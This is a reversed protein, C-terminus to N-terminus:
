ASFLWRFAAILLAIVLLAVLLRLLIPPVNSRGSDRHPARGLKPAPQSPGQTTRGTGHDVTGAGGLVATVSPAAPVETSGSPVGAVPEATGIVDAARPSVPPQETLPTTPSVAESLPASAPPPTRRAPRRTLYARPLRFSLPDALTVTPVSGSVPRPLHVLRPITARGAVPSRLAITQGTEGPSVADETEVPAHPWTVEVASRDSLAGTTWGIGSRSIANLARPPTIAVPPRSTVHTAADASGPATGGVRDRLFTARPVGYVPEALSDVIASEVVPNPARPPELSAVAVRAHSGPTTATVGSCVCGLAPAVDVLASQRALLQQALETAFEGGGHSLEVLARQHGLEWLTEPAPCGGPLSAFRRRDPPLVADFVTPQALVDIGSDALLALFEATRYRVDYDPPGAAPCDGIYMLQGIRASYLARVHRAVAVPPAVTNVLLSALEVGSALLRQRVIPCACFVAPQGSRGGLARLTAEAVLEDGWSEPFVLDFGAALCAHAFQIPRAPLAEILADNGVVAIALNESPQDTPTVSPM